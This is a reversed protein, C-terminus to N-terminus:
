ESDGVMERVLNDITDDIWHCYENSYNEALNIVAKQAFEKIAEARTTKVREVAECYLKDKEDAVKYAETKWGNLLEQLREIEAAQRNILDLANKIMKLECTIKEKTEVGFCPCKSCDSRSDSCCELAKIIDSDTM